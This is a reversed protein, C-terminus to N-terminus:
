QCNTFFYVMLNFFVTSTSILQQAYSQCIWAPATNGTWPPWSWVGCCLRFSSVPVSDGSSQSTVPDSTVSLSVASLMKYVYGCLRLARILVCCLVPFREREFVLPTARLVRCGGPSELPYSSMCVACTRWDKLHDGLVDWYATFFVLFYYM